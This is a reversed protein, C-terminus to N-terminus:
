SSLIVMSISLVNNMVHAVMSSPLGGKKYALSLVFGAILYSPLNVFEILLDKSLFNFHILAFVVTSMFLPLWKSGLRNFLSLLGVRYTLEECIPGIIGLVILSTISDVSIIEILSKQNDNTEFGLSSILMSYLINLVILIIGFAFGKLYNKWKGLNQFVLKYSPILLIILLLFLTIYTAKNISFSLEPYLGVNASIISEEVGFLRSFEGLFYNSFFTSIISLGLWGILFLLVQRSAPLMLENSTISNHNRNNNPELCEPCANLCADYYRGCKTCRINKTFM